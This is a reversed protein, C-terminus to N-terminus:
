LPAVGLGCKPSGREFFACRSIYFIHLVFSTQIDHSKSAFIREMAISGYFPIDKLSEM